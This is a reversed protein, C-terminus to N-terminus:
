IEQVKVPVEDYAIGAKEFVTNIQKTDETNSFYDRLFLLKERAHIRACVGNALKDSTASLPMYEALVGHGELEKKVANNCVAFKITTLRRVDIRKKLLISFFEECVRECCFMIWSYTEIESVAQGIRINETVPKELVVKPTIKPLIENKEAVNTKTKM